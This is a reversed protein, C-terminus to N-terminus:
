KTEEVLKLLETCYDIPNFYKKAKNMSEQCMNKYENDPLNIIQNICNTLGEKDKYIYGNLNNDVLEPLGGMSSVILPKGSSMAEMASYPGNEYWESPLVVCRADNIYNKLEQGTKFGLMQIKNNLENEFIFKHLDEEIPGTGLIVLNYNINKMSNILAFLGKEKSLRGFYLIYNKTTKPIQYITNIPLPNRLYVIPKNTFNAKELMKKYFLSPCIYLDVKNYWNHKKIQKAEFYSLYSMLKSNHVCKNKICHKYNGDLCKKCVNGKGDLMTYAPCVTILDHMTWAIKVNHKKLSDIISCTIQKHVLNLIAIDPKENILLEEMNNYAEKSYAINKVMKIKSTIGGNVGVNSVFYKSQDCPLNKDNKMAFFIVEHGMKKLTEAVTFYYTESGGKHYHFKNVMLIKM